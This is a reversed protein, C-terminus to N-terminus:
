LLFPIDGIDWLRCAAGITLGKISSLHPLELRLPKVFWSTSKSNVHFHSDLSDSLLWQSQTDGLQTKFPSFVLSTNDTQVIFFTSNM